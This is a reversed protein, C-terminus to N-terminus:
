KCIMQTKCEGEHAQRLLKAKQYCLRVSILCTHQLQCMPIVPFTPCINELNGFIKYYIRIMAGLNGKIQVYQINRSSINSGLKQSKQARSATLLMKTCLVYSQPRHIIIVWHKHTNLITGCQDNIFMILPYVLEKFVSEYSPPRGLQIFM